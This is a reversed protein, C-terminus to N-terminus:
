RKRMKAVLPVAVLAIALAALIPLCRRKECGGGCCGGRTERADTETSEPKGKCM